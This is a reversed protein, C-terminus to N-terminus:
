RGVAKSGDARGLNTAQSHLLVFEMSHVAKDSGEGHIGDLRVFVPEAIDNSVALVFDFYLEGDNSVGIAGNALGVTHDVRAGGRFLSQGQSNTGDKNDVRFVLKHEGEVVGSTDSTVHVLNDAADLGQLQRVLLGNGGGGVPGVVYTSKFATRQTGNRNTRAREGKRIELREARLYEWPRRNESSRM